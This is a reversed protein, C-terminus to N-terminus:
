KAAQASTEGLRQLAKRNEPDLALAKKWAKRAGAVDGRLRLADGYLVHYPARRPRKRVAKKAWKVSRDGDKAALYLTAYGAMAQPNKPDLEWARDLTAEALRLDGSRISRLARHVLIDSAKAPDRPLDHTPIPPAADKRAAVAPEVPKTAASKPEIPEAAVPAPETPDAAALESDAAQPETRAEEAEARTAEADIPATSATPPRDEGSPPQEQAPDPPVELGNVSGTIPGKAGKAEARAFTQVSADPPSNTRAWLQWGFVGVGAILTILLLAQIWAPMGGTGELPALLTAPGELVRALEPEFDDDDGEFMPPPTPKRSVAPPPPPPTPKQPVPITRPEDLVEGPLVEFAPALGLQTSKVARAVGHDRHTPAALHEEAAGGGPVPRQRTEVRGILRAVRDTPVEEESFPEPDPEEAAGQLHRFRPPAMTRADELKAPAAVGPPVTAHEDVGPESPPITLADVEVGGDGDTL